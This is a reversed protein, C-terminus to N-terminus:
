INLEKIQLCYVNLYFHYEDELKDCVRCKREDIPIRNPTSWRGVEIELRHSSVRLKILAVRIKKYKGTASQHDFTSFLSYFRARCSDALRSQWNQVFNDKLRLKMESLFVNKNGVDQALLVEYFGM